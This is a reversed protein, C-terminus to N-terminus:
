RVYLHMYRRGDSGVTYAAGAYTWSEYTCCSGWGWSPEWAACGAAPCFCGAPLFAFDNSTHGAIRYYARYDAAAKAAATLNVDEVYPRLGRAARAANVEAIANEGAFGLSPMLCLAATLLYKVMRSEEKNSTM